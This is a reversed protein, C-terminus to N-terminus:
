EVCGPQSYKPINLKCRPGSPFPSYGGSPVPYSEPQPPVPYNGPLPDVPVPYTPLAPPYSVATDPAPPYSPSPSEPYPGVPLPPPYRPAPGADPSPSRDQTKQSRGLSQLTEGLGQLARVFDDVGQVITSPASPSTSDPPPGSAAPPPYVGSPSSRGPPYAVGPAAAPDVPYAPPPPYASPASYPAVVKPPPLGVNLRAPLRAAYDQQTPPLDLIAVPLTERPWALFVVYRRGSMLKNYRNSALQVVTPGTEWALGQIAGQPLPANHTYRGATEAPVVVFGSVSGIAQNFELTLTIGVHGPSLSVASEAAPSDAAGAGCSECVWTLIHHWGRYDYEFRIADNGIVEGPGWLTSESLLLQTGQVRWYGQTSSHRYTGDASLVLPQFTRCSGGGGSVNYSACRYTGPELAQAVVPLTFACLLAVGLVSRNILLTTM